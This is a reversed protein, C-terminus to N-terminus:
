SNDNCENDNQQKRTGKRKERKDAHAGGRPTNLHGKPAKTLDVKGTLPKKQKKNM